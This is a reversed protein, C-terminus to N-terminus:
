ETSRASQLLQAVEAATPLSPQAGARTTCLAGAANAYLVSQRLDLGRALAVALAGNFADGAATTDVVDVAFGAVRVATEPTFLYAGQAGLTMIVARRVAHALRHGLVEVSSEPANAQGLVRRAENENPTLVDIRSLLDPPLPVGPAPNLIVPVGHRGALEAAAQVTALPIELQMLVCAAERIAAEAAYIDAPSLHMNAGSAVAIVNEGRDDVLILAVGSEVTEDWVLHSTDIGEARYAAADTRGLEDNGLRAIFTVEAGLRAAAVAQNAGKGGLNQFFKNGLVTEGPIPLHPVSVVMDTNASGVM